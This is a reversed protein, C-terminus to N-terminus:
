NFQWSLRTNIYHLNYTTRYVTEKCPPVLCPYIYSETLQMRKFNYGAGLNLKHRGTIYFQYGLGADFYLGGKWKESGSSHPLYRTDSNTFNHGARTYAFIHQSGPLLRRLDAYVPFSQERYGDYGVGIGAKLLNFDLGAAMGTVHYFGSEGGSYGGGAIIYFSKVHKKITDQASAALTSLLVLAIISQKM